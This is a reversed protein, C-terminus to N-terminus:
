LRHLGAGPAWDSGLLSHPPHDRRPAGGRQVPPLGAAPRRQRHPRAPEAVARRPAAHRQAPLAQVPQPQRAQAPGPDTIGRSQPEPVPAGAGGPADTLVYYVETGQAVLVYTKDPERELYHEVALTEPVTALHINPWALLYASVGDRPMGTAARTVVVLPRSRALDRLYDVIERLGYGAYNSEVYQFRDTIYRRDNMWPAAAPDTALAAAFSLGPLVTALGLMAAAGRRWPAPPAWLLRLPAVPGRLPDARRDCARGCLRGAGAVTALAQAAPILASILCFVVYRSYILKATLVFALLPALTWVALLRGARGGRWMGGALGAAALLALPWGLYTIAVEVIFISNSWWLALPLQLLEAATLSYRQFNGDQINGVLPSLFLVSYIAAALFFAQALLWWRRLADPRWLGVVVPVLAVFFLASSKTLLALGMALGLLATRLPGPRESWALAAWLVGLATATVLSDYLAMRDHIVAIPAVVYLAAALWAAAPGALHRALVALLALNVLGTSVSVLRGALLRDPLSALFPPMLWALLPQKGDELSALWDEFGRAYLARVGWTIYTGEDSVMPLRDLHTLRTALYAAGLALLLAPTRLRM